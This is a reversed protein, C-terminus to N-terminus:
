RDTEASEGRLEKLLDAPSMIRLHRFTGLELLHKDGSVIIGAKAALAAEIVANDDPDATVVDVPEGPLVLAFTRSVLDIIAAVERAMLGFKPRMLVSELEALLAISTFGEIHGESILRLITRSHGGFLVGSLVVNTDCVIRM